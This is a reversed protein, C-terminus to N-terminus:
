DALSVRNRGSQKASYLADDARKLVAAITEEGRLEAVGFSATVHIGTDAVRFDHKAIQERLDEAAKKAHGADAGIMGVVIEEGGYRGVIDLQRVEARLLEATERLVSDGADHGYTDNISKFHDIDLFMVSLAKIVVSRRKNPHKHQFRVENAIAELYEMLGRRNLIQTLEDTVLREQLTQVQAQLAAIREKYEEISKPEPM